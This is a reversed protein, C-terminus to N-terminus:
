TFLSLPANLATKQAIWRLKRRQFRSSSAFTSRLKRRQFYSWQCAYYRSSFYIRFLGQMWARKPRIIFVVRTVVANCGGGGLGWPRGRLKL